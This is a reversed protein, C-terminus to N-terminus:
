LSARLSITGFMPKLYSTRLIFPEPEGQRCNDIHMDVEICKLAKNRQEKSPAALMEKFTAYAYNPLNYVENIAEVMVIAPSQPNLNSYLEQVLKIIALRPKACFTQWEHQQENSIVFDPMPFDFGREGLLNREKMEEFLESAADDVFREYKPEGAVIKAKGKNKGQTVEKPKEKEAEENVKKGKEAVPKPSAKRKRPSKRTPVQAVEKDQEAQSEDREAEIEETDKAGSPEGVKEFGM